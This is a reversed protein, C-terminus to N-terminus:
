SASAKNASSWIADQISVKKPLIKERYFVDAMTQQAAIAEASIPKLGHGRRKETLELAAVDVKYIPSLLEAVGKPDSAAWDNVKQVEDLIAQIIEPNQDAFSRSALYFGSNPLFGKGDFLLKAGTALEAVAMFPDWTSWADVKGGDFAIRGESPPLYVPQIDNLTLGVKELARIIIYQSNTAKSIAIRKGKLDAATKIGSDKPVLVGVSAPGVNENAVYVVPTGSAQAFIPPPEGTYTFDITGVGLAEMLQPGAIFEKWEVKVGLTALRQDLKGQARLVNLMAGFKSIGLNLVKPKTNSVNTEPPPSANQETKVSTATCGAAVSLLVYGMAKTIQRRKYKM